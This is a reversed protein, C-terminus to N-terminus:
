FWIYIRLDANASNKIEKEKCTYMIRLLIAPHLLFPSMQIGKPTIKWAPRQSKTRM